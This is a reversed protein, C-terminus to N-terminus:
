LLWFFSLIAIGEIRRFDKEVYGENTQLPCALM